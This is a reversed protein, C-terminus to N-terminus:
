ALGLQRTARFLVHVRECHHTAAVTERLQIHISIEIVVIQCIPMISVCTPAGYRTLSLLLLLRVCTM